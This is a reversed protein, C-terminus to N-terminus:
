SMEADVGAQVEEPTLDGISQSVMWLHGFPDAFRGGREGYPHDSIPFVVKAGAAELAAGVADADFVDLAIIVPNGGLSTPAPDVGDEDKVAVKTEGIEVASHVIKGDPGAYRELERAGFAKAYFDLAAAADNVVLRPYLDLIRQTSM